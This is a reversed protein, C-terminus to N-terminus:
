GRKSHIILFLYTVDGDTAFPAACALRFIVSIIQWICALFCWFLLFTIDRYGDQFLSATHFVSAKFYLPILFHLVFYPAYIISLSYFVFSFPYLLEERSNSIQLTLISCFTSDKLNNLWTNQSESRRVPFRHRM